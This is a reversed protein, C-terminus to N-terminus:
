RLPEWPSVAHRANTADPGDNWWVRYHARIRGRQGAVDKAHFSWVVDTRSASTVLARREGPGLTGDTPYTPETRLFLYHSERKGDNKEVEAELWVQAGSESTAFPLPASSANTVTVDIADDLKAGDTLPLPGKQTVRLAYPRAIPIELPASRLAYEPMAHLVPPVKSKDRAHAGYTYRATIRARTGELEVAPFHFWELRVESGPALVRVDKEWDHAYVGCRGGTSHEAPVFTGSPGAVEVDFGIHPERWGAESGDNSLVIPFARTKSRNVLYVDIRPDREEELPATERRRLELSLDREVEAASIQAAGVNVHEGQRPGVGAMQSPEGVESSCSAAAITATALAALRTRM